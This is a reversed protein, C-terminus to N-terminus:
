PLLRSESAGTPPPLLHLRRPHTSTQPGQETAYHVTLHIDRIEATTVPTTQRVLVLAGPVRITPCQHPVLSQGRQLLFELGSGNGASLTVREVETLLSRCQARDVWYVGLLRVDEGAPVPIPPEPQAAQCAALGLLALM